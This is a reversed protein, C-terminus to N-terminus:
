LWEQNPIANKLPASHLPKSLFYGVLMGRCFLFYECGHFFSFDLFDLPGGQLGGLFMKIQKSHSAAISRFMKMKLPIPLM